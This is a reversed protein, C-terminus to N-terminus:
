QAESESGVAYIFRFRNTVGRANYSIGVTRGKKCPITACLAQNGSASLVFAVIGGVYLYQKDTANKDILFYGDAPATYTSGSAGLTLDIYKNYFNNM